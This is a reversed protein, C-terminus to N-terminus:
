AIPLRAITVGARAFKEIDSTAAFRGTRGLSVGDKWLLVWPRDGAGFVSQPDTTATTLTNTLGQFLVRAAADPDAAMLIFGPITVNPVPRLATADVDRGIEEGFYSDIAKDFAFGAVKQALHAFVSDGMAMKFTPPAKDLAHGMCVIPAAPGRSATTRWRSLRVPRRNEKGRRELSEATWAVGDTTGRWRRIRYSGKREYEFTWGRMSAQQKLEENQAALRRSAAMVILIVVTAVLVISSVVIATEYTM